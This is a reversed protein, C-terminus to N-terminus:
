TQHCRVYAEVPHTRNAAFPDGATAPQLEQKTTFPLEALQDLSELRHRAGGLKHQYFPNSQIVDALLRNLKELQLRELASRDLSELERRQDFSLSNSRSMM